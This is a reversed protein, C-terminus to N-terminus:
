YSVENGLPLIEIWIQGRNLKIEKGKSDKFIMREKREKKNWTGETVQGDQFILAKGDGKTKYLLHLNNEYGDNARSEKMFLVAVVKARLQTDDNRDVQPTGGNIRQYDNSALSYEWKVKYDDYGSWFVFQPSKSGRKSEEEDDKFKWMQFNKDWSVDDKDVNTLGRKAAAEFLKDATSYMTHETDVTHGLREYDRWFTPFGLSFQNLDNGKKIWGYDAIQGLANAPGPTNAGGVHAYLPFDAYESAFDLFYTRASRVPGVQVDLASAGCYFVAMMRTIGGEAVAEYIVDARSLGSQPRAEQHNEIMVALPRRKAWIEKEEETFKAGNLSCEETKPKTLDVRFGSKQMQTTAPTSVSPVKLYNFVAYSAGTSLLYLGIGALILFILNKKSKRM